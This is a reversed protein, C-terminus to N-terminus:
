RSPATFEGLHRAVAALDSPESAVRRGEELLIQVTDRIQEETVVVREIDTDYWNGEGM